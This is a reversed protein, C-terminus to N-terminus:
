GADRRVGFYRFTSRSRCKWRPRHDSRSFEPLAKTPCNAKTATDSTHVGLLAEWWRAHPIREGRRIQACYRLSLGTAAALRRISARQLQPLIQARFLNPDAAEPHALDWAVQEQIRRIRSQRVKELAQASKTPDRGEARLEALRRPGRASFQANREGREAPACEDCILRDSGVTAGCWKCARNTPRRLQTGMPKARGYPRAEQRRRGSVPTRLSAPDLRGAVDEAVRGARAGLELAIGWLSKALHSTLRCAGSSTEFFDSCAFTRRQVLDLVYRDVIPRLPEMLDSALSDRNDQDVHYVGLGPDLGVIRCAITTESELIGYAYSVLANAPNIALRPGATLPSSRSGFTLWHSPALQRDRRAFLIPLASWASWYTAAAQGEATRLANEDGAKAAARGQRDIADFAEPTVRILEALTGLTARQGAIKELVLDRAIELGLASHLAMAQGRRLSPRDTGLPGNAVIVRGDADAHVFAAKISELWRLAELSVFGTSHGLVVLRRLRGTARHLLISRRASGVGDEIRLRGRWVSVGVAHGSVTLVGNTLTIEEPWSQASTRKQPM